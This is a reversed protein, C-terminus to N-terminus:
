RMRVVNHVADALKSALRRVVRADTLTEDTIIRCSGGANGSKGFLHLTIATSTRDEIADGFRAEFISGTILLEANQSALLEPIPASSSSVRKVNYGRSFFEFTLADYVNKAAYPNFDMVRNEIDGLIITKPASGKLEEKITIEAVACSLSQFILAASWLFRLAKLNM